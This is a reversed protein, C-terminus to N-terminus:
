GKLGKEAETQARQVYRRLTDGYERGFVQRNKETSLRKILNKLMRDTLYDCHIKGPPNKAAEEASKFVINAVHEWKLKDTSDSQDEFKILLNEWWLNDKPPVSRRTAKEFTEAMQASKDSDAETSNKVKKARVIDMKCYECGIWKGDEGQRYQYTEKPIGVIATNDIRYQLEILIGECLGNEDYSGVEIMDPERTWFLSGLSPNAQKVKWIEGNEWNFVCFDSLGKIEHTLLLWREQKKTRHPNTYSVLPEFSLDVYKRVEVSGDLPPYVDTQIAPPFGTESKEGDIIIHSMIHD